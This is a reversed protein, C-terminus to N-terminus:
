AFREMLRARRRGAWLHLIAGAGLFLVAQTAHLPLEAGLFSVDLPLSRIGDHHVSLSTWIGAVPSLILTFPGPLRTIETYQF